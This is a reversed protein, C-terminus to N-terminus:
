SICSPVPMDRVALCHLESATPKWFATSYEMHTSASWHFMEGLLIQPGMLMLCGAQTYRLFRSKGSFSFVCCDTNEMMDDGFGGIVYMMGDLVVACHRTRPTSVHGGPLIQNWARGVLDFAWVDNLALCSNSTEDEIPMGQGGFSRLADINIVNFGLFGSPRM